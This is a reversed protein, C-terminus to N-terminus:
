SEDTYLQVMTDDFVMTPPLGSDILQQHAQEIEAETPASDRLLALCYRLAAVQALTLQDPALRQVSLTLAACLRQVPESSTDWLSKISNQWAAVCGQRTAADWQQEVKDLWQALHTLQLHFLQRQHRQWQEFADVAILVAIPEANEKATLIVPRHTTQAQKVLDRLWTEAEQLTLTHTIM